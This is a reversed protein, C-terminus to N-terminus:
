EHCAAALHHLGILRRLLVEIIAGLSLPVQAVVTSANSRGRAVVGGPLRCSSVLRCVQAVYDERGVVRHDVTSIAQDHDIDLLRVVLFSATEPFVHLSPVLGLHKSRCDFRWRVDELGLEADGLGGRILLVVWRRSRYEADVGSGLFAALQPQLHGIYHHLGALQLLPLVVRRRCRGRYDVFIVSVRLLLHRCGVQGIVLLIVKSEIKVWEEEDELIIM